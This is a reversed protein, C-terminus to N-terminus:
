LLIMVLVDQMDACKIYGYLISALIHKTLHKEVHLIFPGSLLVFPAKTFALLTIESLPKM